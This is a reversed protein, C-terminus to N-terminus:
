AATAVLKKAEAFAAEKVRKGEGFWISELRQWGSAYIWCHDVLEVVGNYAAWLSDKAPPKDNGRGEKFLRAAEDRMQRVKRCAEEYSRDTQGRKRKPEPFVASLYSKLEDGHLRKDAFKGYINALESYEELIRQVAAHAESISTRMGPVHYVKFLDNKGVLSAMLTNQCVVRVPTFRIQVSTRGDHSTSFLLYKEVKDVDSDKIRIEDGAVKGLVWVREGKGLAGATEFTVGGAAIIPDFFEFAERNQLVQYDNGVLAFPVCDPQGWKDLRVIAKKDPIQCFIGGEMCYVPKLGVEWGLNAAQMAEAATRPPSELVTGLGHWPVLRVSMMSALGNEINLNHAM